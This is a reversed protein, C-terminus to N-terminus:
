LSNKYTDCRNHWGARWRQEGRAPDSNSIRTNLARKASEAFESAAAQGSSVNRMGLLVQKLGWGHGKYAEKPNIGEGKFNVYDILAYMGNSTTAVKDYNARIIAQQTPTSSALIKGLAATSKLIIFDTQLTVSTSLFSRLEKLKTGNFDANFQDRSRWPSTTVTGNSTILWAPVKTNRERAYTIFQPFSETFPGKVGAPYWIFHGIGVSPFEEGKNWTTLGTITGASENQWIKQGIKKRDSTSLRSIPSSPSINPKVVVRNGEAPPSTTPTQAVTLCSTFFCLAPLCVASLSLTPRTSSTKKM